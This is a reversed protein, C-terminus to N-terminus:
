VRLVKAMRSATLNEHESPAKATKTFGHPRRAGQARAGFCAGSV